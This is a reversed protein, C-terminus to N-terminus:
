AREVPSAEPSEAEFWERAARWAARRAHDLVVTHGGRDLWVLRRPVRLSAEIRRAVRPRIVRDGLANVLLTPATIHPIQADLACLLAYVQAANRLPIRRYTFRRRRVAPDRIDSGVKPVFTIWRSLFDAWRLPSRRALVGDPASFAVVREVPERAAAHLALAAGLSLGALCVRDCEGRLRTLGLRVDEMWAQWPVDALDEPRTGHGRLCIGSVTMGAAALYGGLPRM